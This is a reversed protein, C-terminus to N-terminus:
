QSIWLERQEQLSGPCMGLRSCHQICSDGLLFTKGWSHQSQPTFVRGMQAMVGRSIHPICDCLNSASM